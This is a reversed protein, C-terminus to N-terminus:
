WDQYESHQKFIPPRVYDDLQVNKEIMLEVYKLLQVLGLKIGNNSIPSGKTESKPTKLEIIMRVTKKKKSDTSVLVIDPSINRGLTIINEELEHKGFLHLIPQIVSLTFASQYRREHEFLKGSAVFNNRDHDRLEQKWNQIFPTPPPISQNQHANKILHELDIHFKNEIRGIEDLDTLIAFDFSDISTESEEM